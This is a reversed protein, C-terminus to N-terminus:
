FKGINLVTKSQVLCLLDTHSNNPAFHSTLKLVLLM